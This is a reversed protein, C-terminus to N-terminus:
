RGWPDTGPARVNEIYLARNVMGYRNEVVSLDRVFWHGYGGNRVVEGNLWESRAPYRFECPDGPRLAETKQLDTM